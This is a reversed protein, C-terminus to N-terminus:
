PEGEKLRELETRVVQWGFRQRGVPELIPLREGEDEAERERVAGGDDRGPELNKFIYKM